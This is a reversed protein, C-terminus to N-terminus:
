TGSCKRKRSKIGARWSFWRESCDVKVWKGV